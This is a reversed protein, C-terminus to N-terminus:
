YYESDDNNYKQIQYSDQILAAQLVNRTLGATICAGLVWIIDILGGLDGLYALATYQKRTYLRTRSSVRFYTTYLPAELMDEENAPKEYQYVKEFQFTERKKTESFQFVGDKLEVVSKMYFMNWRQDRHPDILFLTTTDMNYRIVDDADQRNWDIHSDLLVINILQYM